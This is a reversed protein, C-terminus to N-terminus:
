KVKKLVKSYIKVPYKSRLDEVFLDELERTYDNTVRNRVDAVEEPGNILHGLYTSIFRFRNSFKPEPGNFAIYDIVQNEGQPLVVRETRIDRPFRAKLSDGIVEPSPKVEKLFADVEHKLSDSTSYIVYGKWRPAAFAYKDKNADFYAKLGEPERSPRNWVNDELSAVLMLGEAYEDAQRKFDPYKDALTREEYALLASTESGDIRTVLQDAVPGQEPNIRMTSALFTGITVVSDAVYYLPTPNNALAVKASDFGLKNATSILLERGEANERFGLESKLQEARAISPRLARVDRKMNEEVQRM